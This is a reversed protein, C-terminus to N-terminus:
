LGGLAIVGVLESFGDVGLGFFGVFFYDVTERLEGFLTADRLGCEGYGPHEAFRVDRSGDYTGGFGVVQV